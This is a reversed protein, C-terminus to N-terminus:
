MIWQGSGSCMIYIVFGISDNLLREPTFQFIIYSDDGNGMAELGNHIVILYYPNFKRGECTITQVQM